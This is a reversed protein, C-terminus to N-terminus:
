TPCELGGLRTLKSGLYGAELSWNEGFTKQLSLNWQQAHGSGNDRQVGFVGQGLGADPGPPQPKVSPGQSLYFAPTINDLTQQGLTQIFPFLPTTFPTTIGAQEIWTLSYGSRVVFSDTLRYALGIRPGLDAKELNRATRPFGNQGFYDLKQTQLNFVAGRNDAITSPFNLTYRVGLNLSLRATARWDDQMFFEGITARPGLVEEQADITFKTV